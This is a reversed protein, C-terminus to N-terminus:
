TFNQKQDPMKHRLMNVFTYYVFDFECYKTYRQCDFHKASCHQIQQIWNRGNTMGNAAQKPHTRNTWTFKLVTEVPSGISLTITALARPCLHSVIAM